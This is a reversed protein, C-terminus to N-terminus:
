KNKNRRRVGIGNEVKRNQEEILKKLEIYRALTINDDVPYKNFILGAMLQEFTPTKVAESTKQLMEIQKYKMNIRTVLSEVKRFNANISQVYDDQSSVKINYGRKRLEKIRDIDVTFCLVILAAKIWNYENLLRNYAKRHDLINRFERSGSLENQKEVISEWHQYCDDIPQPTKALLEYCGTEAIQLFLKLPIEDFSIFNKTGSSQLLASDQSSLYRKVKKLLTSSIEM